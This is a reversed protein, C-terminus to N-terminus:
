KKKTKLIKSMDISTKNLKIVQTDVVPVSKNLWAKIQPTLEVFRELFRILSEQHDAM